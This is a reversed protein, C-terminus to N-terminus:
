KNGLSLPDKGAPEFHLDMGNYHLPQHRPAASPGQVFELQPQPEALLGLAYARIHGLAQGRAVPSLTLAVAAGLSFCAGAYICLAFM